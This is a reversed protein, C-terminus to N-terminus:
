TFSPVVTKRLSSYLPASGPTRQFKLSCPGTQTVMYPPNDQAMSTFLKLHLLHIWHPIGELKAATPTLLIVRLPGQWKPSHPSPRQGPSSFLVKDGIKVPPPCTNACPQPLSHDTFDWLLSHFLLLTLLHDPLPSTGWSLGPTLVPQQYM